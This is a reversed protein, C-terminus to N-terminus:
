VILCEVLICNEDERPGEALSAQEAAVRAEEEEIELQKGWCTTCYLVEPRHGRPKNDLGKRYAEQFLACHTEKLPGYHQKTAREAIWNAKDRSIYSNVDKPWCTKGEPTTVTVTPVGPMPEPPTQTMPLLVSRLCSKAKKPLAEYKQEGQLLLKLSTQAYNRRKKVTSMSASRERKVFDKPPVPLHNLNQAHRQIIQEWYNPTDQNETAPTAGLETGSRPTSASLVMTAAPDTVPEWDDPRSRRHRKSQPRREETGNEIACISLVTTGSLENVPMCHNPKREYLAGITPAMM